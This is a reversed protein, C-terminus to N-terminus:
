ESSKKLAFLRVTLDLLLDDQPNSKLHEVHLAVATSTNHTPWQAFQVSEAPRWDKHHASLVGLRGKKKAIFALDFYSNSDSDSRASLLCSATPVGGWEDWYHEIPPTEFKGYRGQHLVLRNEHILWVDHPTVGDGAIVVQNMSSCENNAIPITHLLQCTGAAYYLSFVRLHTNTLVVYTTHELQCDGFFRVGVISATEENLIVEQAKQSCNG